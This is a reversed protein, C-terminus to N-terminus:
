EEKKTFESTIYQIACKKCDQSIRVMNGCIDCYFHVVKYLKNDRNRYKDKEKKM